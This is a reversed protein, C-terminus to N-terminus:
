MPALGDPPPETWLNAMPPDEPDEVVAAATAEVPRAPEARAQKLWDRVMLRTEASVAANSPGKLQDIRWNGNRGRRILGLTCREPALVRYMAYNGRAVRVAYSAACNHQRRGERRLESVSTLPRIISTGPFPPPPLATARLTPRIHRDVLVTLEEHADRVRDASHFLPLPRGPRVQRWMQLTDALTDPQVPPAADSGDAIEQLLRPSVHLISSEATMRLIAANIRPVHALRKAIEAVRLRERLAVLWELNMAPYTIKRVIHRAADTGPFGLWGLISRQKRYPLLAPIPECTPGGGPNRFQWASAVMFALAPNSVCLDLAAPGSRAIWALLQWQGRAYPTVVRRVDAPILTAYRGVPDDRGDPELPLHFAPLCSSWHRHCVPSRYAAMEPWPFLVMVQGTEVEYLRGTVRDFVVGPSSPLEM